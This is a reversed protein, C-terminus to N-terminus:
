LVLKKHGTEDYPIKLAEEFRHWNNLIDVM